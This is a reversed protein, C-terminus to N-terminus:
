NATKGGFRTPKNNKETNAPFFGEGWFLVIILRLLQDSSYPINTELILFIWIVPYQHNMGTIRAVQSAAILLIV